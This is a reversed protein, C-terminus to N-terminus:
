LSPGLMDEPRVWEDIQEYTLLGLDLAEQMLSLLF